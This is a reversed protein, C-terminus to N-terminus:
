LGAFARLEAERDILVRELERAADSAPAHARLAAQFARLAAGVREDGGDLVFAVVLGAEHIRRASSPVDDLALRFEFTDRLPRLGGQEKLNALAWRRAWLPDASARDVFFREVYSAAGYRLWRPVRKESWFAAPRMGASPLASLAHWSPDIAEVFSQAAAHRVAHRGYPALVPNEPEHFAVGAARHAPPTPTFDFWSEAFFAYHLSSFGELEPPPTNTAADGAAFANYQAISRVVLLTPRDCRPGLLDITCPAFGPTVGFLRVLDDFAADAESRVFAHEARPLTTAVVFHEGEVLWPHALEGRCEDAAEPAVWTDGCKVRGQEADARENPAIWELGRRTWGQAALLAERALRGRTDASLWRGSADKSCGADLWDREEPRVWRSRWRVLGRERLALEDEARQFRALATWTEFWRDAYRLHHLGRHAEEDDPALALVRTWAADAAREAGVASWARALRALVDRDAGARTVRAEFETTQAATTQAATTQAATSRPREQGVARVAAFAAVLVVAALSASRSRRTPRSRKM